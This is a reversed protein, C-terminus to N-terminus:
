KENTDYNEHKNKNIAQISARQEHIFKEYLVEAMERCSDRLAEAEVATVTADDLLELVRNISLM